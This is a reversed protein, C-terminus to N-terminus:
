KQPRMIKKLELIHKANQKMKRNSPPKWDRKKMGQFLTFDSKALGFFDDSHFRVFCDQGKSEGKTPFFHVGPNGPCLSCTTYTDKGCVECQKACKIKKVHHIHKLLDDLCGCLRSNKKGKMQHLQMGTVQEGVCTIVDESSDSTNGSDDKQAADSRKTRKKKKSPPESLSSGVSGGKKMRQEKNMATYSRMRDDGPYNCFRPDYKLMQKGLKDRFQWFTMPKKVYWLPNLKGECCELYMDYAVTGAMAKVHLMSAHWYKWSCYKMGSFKILKDVNDIIGYSALYLSRSDNMEIVWRRKRDDQGREKAWVSSKCSNLANVTSINCSSTSQFSVHARQYKSTGDNCVGEKVAVIPEVFRAVKTRSSTDTKKIHLFHKPIDRPFRDRRCTMTCRYGKQGILEFIHDGSFFNDCTIHPKERFIKYGPSASGIIMSDLKELLLRIENPGQPLKSPNPHRQHRHLYARPRIRHVDFLMVTQMGRTVGPKTQGLRKLLGTNAEGYGMHSITTEDCCLDLDAHKSIANCNNVLAKFILDYKYAPDFGVDGRRGAVYNNCLKYSRKLQLFRDYTLSDQILPDYMSEGTVWRQYLAANSGGLAGDRVIVGDFRVLEQVKIAKFAHAYQGGFLGIDCAYLNSYNTVDSYFAVRPDSPIGSKKPNCIPLLLQYFFLADGSTMREKTLGVKKLLEGDLCGYRETPFLEKSSKCKRGINVKSEWGNYFFNWDGVSRSIGDTGLPVPTVGTAQFHGKYKGGGKEFEPRFIYQNWNGPNDVSSFEPEDVKRESPEWSEPISPIFKELDDRESESESVKIVNRDNFEVVENDEKHVRNDLKAERKAEDLEEILDGDIDSDGGDGSEQIELLVNSIDVTFTSMDSKGSSTKICYRPISYGTSSEYEDAAASNITSGDEQTSEKITDIVNTMNRKRLSRPQTPVSPSTNVNSNPTSHLSSVCSQVSLADKGITVSSPKKSTIANEPTSPPPENNNKTEDAM